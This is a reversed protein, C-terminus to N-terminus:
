PGPTKPSIGVAGLWQTSWADFSYHKQVGARARGGMSLREQASMEIVGDIADTWEVSNNAVFGGLRPIVSSNAGIGTGVVPLGAAAYQLLKYSCKGRTFPTDQLPMLGVDASAIQSAFTGPDWDQRDIISDLPGLSANGASIVTVRLGHKANLEMLVSSLETLYSETSPSGIWVARPYEALDYSAKQTYNSPEVCSPILVVESRYKSAQEALNENGAIVVDAAQVSALWARKSSWFRQFPGAALYIADDFDYVSHLAAKLLAGELAGSSFPSASRGLILTRDGVRGVLKRLDLEAMAVRAGGVRLLTSLGANSTGAYEHRDVALDFHDFWDYMRVRTSAGSAGYRSVCVVSENEAQADSRM